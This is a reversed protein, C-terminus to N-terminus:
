QSDNKSGCIDCLEKNNCYECPLDKATKQKEGKLQEEQERLDKHSAYMRPQSYGREMVTFEDETVTIWYRPNSDDYVNIAIKLYENGGQGKSARESTTTAYLKM